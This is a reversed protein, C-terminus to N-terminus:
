NSSIKENDIKIKQNLLLVVEFLIEFIELFSLFSIGIFLGLTGGISSILDVLIMKKNEKILTYKLDSYYIFVGVASKRVNEYTLNATFNAYKSIIVKNKLLTKYRTISPYDSISTLITYTTTECEVPCYPSCLGLFNNESNNLPLAKICLDLCDKQRYTYNQSTLNDFYISGGFKTKMEEFSICDSYPYPLRKTIIKDILMDSLFAPAISFGENPTPNVTYNHIYFHFGDDRHPGISENPLGVFLELKLGNQRGPVISKLIETKQGLRNYGSNFRFCDGYRTERFLVFDDPKCESKYFSCALLFQDISTNTFPRNKNCFSITPFEIPIEYILNANTTVDFSLYNFLTDLVLYFCTIISIILSIAWMLKIPKRRSRIISPLGHSTSVLILESISNKINSTLNTKNSM